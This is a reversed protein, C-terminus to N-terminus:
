FGAAVTFIEFIGLEACVLLCSCDRGHCVSVGVVVGFQAAAKCLAVVGVALSVPAIIVTVVYYVVPRSLVCGVLM